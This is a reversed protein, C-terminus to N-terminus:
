FFGMIVVKGVKDANEIELNWYPMPKLPRTVTGGMPVLLALLGRTM